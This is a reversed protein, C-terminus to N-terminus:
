GTRSRWAAAPGTGNPSTSCTPISGKWIPWNPLSGPRRATSGYEGLFGLFLTYQSKPNKVYIKFMGEPTWRNDVGLSVPVPFNYVFNGYRDHRVIAGKRCYYLLHDKKVVVILDGNSFKGALEKVKQDLLYEYYYQSYEPSIYARVVASSLLLVLGFAIVTSAIIRKM